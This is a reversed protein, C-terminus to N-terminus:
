SFTSKPHFSDLNIENPINLSDDNREAIESQIFSLSLIINKSITVFIYIFQLQHIIKKDTTSKSLLFFFFNGSFYLLLGVCIWFSISNYIPYSNVINM